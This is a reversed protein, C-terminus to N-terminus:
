AGERPRPPAACAVLGPDRPGAPVHGDRWATPFPLEVIRDPPVQAREALSRTFAGMPLVLDARRVVFGEIREVIGAVRPRRHVLLQKSAMNGTIRTVLPLRARLVRACVFGLASYPTPALAVVRGRSVAAFVALLAHTVWALVIAAPTPVCLPVVPGRARFRPDLSPGRGRRLGWAEVVIGPDEVVWPWDRSLKHRWWIVGDESALDPCWVELSVVKM